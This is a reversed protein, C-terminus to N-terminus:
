SGKQNTDGIFEFALRALLYSITSEAGQNLNMANKGLGDHCGGTGEDYVVQNLHNKGLFWQFATYADELHRKDGTIKYAALKTLVMHATDEPQQDFFSRKGHRFYWGNQGIPSYHKKEFTIQSLFALSKQAAELYKKKKTLDYAYLLSEPLISNSYTLHDEFWPWDESSCAKYFALQRDALKKFRYQLYFNPHRKLHHYLGTMAFAIARPSEMRSLVGLSKKLATEGKQKIEQPLGDQSGLYGLAWIGRGQVDEDSTKDPKRARSVINAFTGDPRQLTEMFNLYTRILTLTEPSPNKQYHMASVILARSNDDLSYGHSKEPTSYKAFHLIGFDDTLRRLHDLKIPPLKTEEKELHIFKQYLKFYAAAVNPWIMHRSREYSENGMSRMEKPNELVQLLARGLAAASRPKVLFGNRSDVLYRAYDTDTSIIPRGCGLAYALTGSVSQKADITPSIYVDTAKLYQVIEELALYKNYFKVHRGLDLRNVEQILFNRYTEGSDKRINPHTAGLVLYLVNPFRKVVKPLSRIAYEVGKNPSLLGFTSLITKGELGLLKKNPESPEYTTPPIGHPILFIKSKQIGYDRVLVEASLKNMVVLAGASEAISRMVNYLNEDPSAIVSHLSVIVPKELTQLFPIIYDGWLGGFLGFEHQVNILKIDERRNIKKAIKVYHGLETAIIEDMVRPGYNYFSTPQDGLAAVRSKIAPNFAKDFANALDQTFTAIGCERPPYSSVHLICNQSSPHNRKMTQNIAILM